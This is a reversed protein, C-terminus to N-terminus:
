SFKPSGGHGALFGETDINHFGARLAPAIPRHCDATRTAVPKNRWACRDLHGSVVSEVRKLAGSDAAGCQMALGDGPVPMRCTEIM